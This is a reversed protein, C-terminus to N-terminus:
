HEKHLKSLLPAIGPGIATRYCAPFKEGAVPYASATVGDGELRVSYVYDRRGMMEPGLSGNSILEDLSAFKEQKNIHALEAQLIAGLDEKASAIRKQDEGLVARRQFFRSGIQHLERQGQVAIAAVVSGLALIFNRRNM